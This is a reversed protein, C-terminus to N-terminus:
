EYHQLAMYITDEGLLEIASQASEKDKFYVGGSMVTKHEIIELVKRYKGEITKHTIRIGFKSSDVKPRWTKNFFSAVMMLKAICALHNSQDETLLFLVSEGVAFDGDVIQHIQVQAVVNSSDESLKEVVDDLTLAKPTSEKLVIKTEPGSLISKELDIEYGEPIGQFKIEM